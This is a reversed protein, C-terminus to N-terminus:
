PGFREIYEISEIFAKVMEAGRFDGNFQNLKTLWFNWGNFNTDQPDDPNRRLYGFYQALVFSRNLENQFMTADEAVARVVQARNKQGVQLDSVLTDREGQSLAGGSKTNLTDVFAQTTMSHPYISLFQPRSVFEEFYAVKNAELVQEWNGIGVQVGEGIRRADALFDNFRLPVPITPPNIDGFAAKYARHVLFGTDRNEISLFFAASTDIMKVKRCNLDGGCVTIGDSWFNLGGLDPERGLFDMYQQRVFFRTNLSEVKAPNAGTVADNDNITLVAASTGGLTTGVPNSLTLNVTETQSEGGDGPKFVDDTILVVFSKSTENPGFRLTGRTKTYDKRENATGQSTAFDINAAGTVDAGARTVTITRLGTGEFGLGNGDVGENVSFAASSFSVNNQSSTDSLTISYNGTDGSGFSTAAILYVGTSPLAMFGNLPIRSDTNDGLVIDDNEAILKGSPDFLYLFTDLDGPQPPDQPQSAATMEIKVRQGAIGTFIYLDTFATIRGVQGAFCDPSSLTGNLTQNFGIPTRPCGSAAGQSVTFQQGGIDVTASRPGGTNAAVTFNITASGTGTETTPTLWSANDAFGWACGGNTTVTVSGSGGAADFFRPATSNLAYTCGPAVLRSLCSGNLLTHNTIEDRSFSCFDLSSTIISNMISSACSSVPPEEEDPHVASFNHGIEHATLGVRASGSVSMSQSLGYAFTPIACIVGPFAVGITNGDLNKGTWLHAFDRAPPSGPAFSGNYGTRFQNLLDGADTSTYPDTNTEWVRQFVISIKIGLQTDYIGDVQNMISVIDNNTAAASGFLQRYEFDAETALEAQPKPAFVEEPTIDTAASPSLSGKAASPSPSDSKIRALEENMRHALKTAGCEFGQDKLSSAAYFVFSKAGASSSFKRASEVFYREHPTIILGEFSQEDITFRAEANEMGNVVGRYTHLPTRPLERVSGDAGVAVARYNAARIDHPVLEMDFAGESTSLLMRGTRRVQEAIGSPELGLVDYRSLVKDVDQRFSSSEQITVASSKNSAKNSAVSNVDNSSDILTARDSRSAVSTLPLTSIGILVSALIFIFLKLHRKM